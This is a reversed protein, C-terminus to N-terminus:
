FCPYSLAANMLENYNM